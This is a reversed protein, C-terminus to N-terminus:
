ILGSVNEQFTHQHGTPVDPFHPEEQREEGENSERYEEEM